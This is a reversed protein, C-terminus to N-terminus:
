FKLYFEKYCKKYEEEPDGKEDFMTLFEVITESPFENCCEFMVRKFSLRKNNRVYCIRSIYLNNTTIEETLNLFIDTPTIMAVKGHPSLLYRSYQIIVAPSLTDQHRAKLRRSDPTKIGSAYYPPNSILLDYKKGSHSCFDVFDSKVANLRKKWPSMIFNSTAEEISENDIDIADVLAIPFRQAMMLAIIGCGTGIDLVSKGSMYAWGGILVADAGVRMSSRTHSVSFQKFQFRDDNM